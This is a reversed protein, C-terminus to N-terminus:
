STSQGIMSQGTMSLGPRQHGEIIESVSDDDPKKRAVNGNLLWWTHFGRGCCSMDLACLILTVLSSLLLVLLARLLNLQYEFFYLFCFRIANHWWKLAKEEDRRRGIDLLIRCLFLVIRKLTGLVYLFVLFGIIYEPIRVSFSPIRARDGIVWPGCIPVGCWMTISLFIFINRLGTIFAGCVLVWQCGIFILFLVSFDIIEAPLCLVIGCTLILRSLLFIALAFTPTNKYSSIENELGCEYINRFTQDKGREMVNNLEEANWGSTSTIFEVFDNADQKMLSWRPFPSFIVPTILWAFISILVLIMPLYGGGGDSANLTAYCIYLALLNFAPHYHSRWYTKYNDKWTQHQNAIPRGTFFYKAVGTIMGERMASAINKNQFIFFFTSSVIGCVLDRVARQPGFELLLEMFQPVMAVIGMSVIWESSLLSGLKSLDALSISALTFALFLLVYIYISCDILLNSIYFAISSFYFSLGHLIGIRECIIHNDRSRIVAISGGSIKSFFNSAANFTAERGKEFELFDIHPSNEERMRVNYGAFIDESLNVVPSCKSMGGRNRAWFGDVFDPHGYHMRTAMGSLFRQYITGFTWEAAAHCRGVCGDRGTFIYERFGIYRALVSSRSARDLPAFMRLVYPMKFAEGIFVGMNCDMAQIYHGSAFRLANLQNSAKGQTECGKTGIRLPYCRPLVEMVELGQHAGWRCKVSCYKPVVPGSPNDQRRCNNWATQLQAPTLQDQALGRCMEDYTVLADNLNSCVRREERTQELFQRVLEKDEDKSKPTLDFVLYFPLQPYKRLLLKVDADHRGSGSTEGPKLQGYTQHALLLEVHKEPTRIGPQQERLDAYHKQIGPLSQLALHYQLAGIVTKAVSQTRMAAWFRIEEEITDGDPGTADMGQNRMFNSYLEVADIQLRVALCVWEDPFQSIIFYLNTNLGDGKPPKTRENLGHRDDGQNRADDIRGGSQLFEVSPIVMEDYAPIIQTLSPISGAHFHDATLADTASVFTAGELQFHPKEIWKLSKFFAALREAALPNHIVSLDIQGRRADPLPQGDLNVGAAAALRRADGPLLLSDKMLSQAMKAFIRQWGPGFTREFLEASYGNMSLDIIEATNKLNNLKRKNGMVLGGFACFIYMVFYIDLMVSIGVLTWVFVISMACPVCSSTMWRQSCAGMQKQSDFKSLLIFGCQNEWDLGVTMPLLLRHEFVICCGLMLAWCLLVVGDKKSLWRWSSNQGDLEGKLYIPRRRRHMIIFILIRPLWYLGFRILAESTRKDECENSDKNRCVPTRQAIDLNSYMLAFGFLALLLGVLHELLWLTSIAGPSNRGFSPSRQWTCYILQLVEIIIWLASDLLGSYQLLDVRLWQPSFLGGNPDLRSGLYLYYAIGFCWLKIFFVARYSIMLDIFVFVSQPEKFTKTVHKRCQVGSENIDDFNHGLQNQDGSATPVPARRYPNSNKQMQDLGDHLVDLDITYTRANSEPNDRSNASALIESLLYSLREPCNIIHEGLSEMIRLLAAELFLLKTTREEGRAREDHAARAGAYQTWVAFNQLCRAHVIEVAEEWDSRFSDAGPNVPVITAGQPLQQPSAHPQRARTAKIDLRATYVQDMLIRIQTRIHSMLWMEVKERNELKKTTLAIIHDGQLQANAPAISSLSVEHRKQPLESRPQVQQERTPNAAERREADENQRGGDSSSRQRVKTCVYVSQVCIVLLVLGIGPLLWPLAPQMMACAIEPDTSEGETFLPERFRPTVCHLGWRSVSSALGLFEPYMKSSPGEFNEVEVSCATDHSFRSSKCPETMAAVSSAALKFPGNTGRAWDDQWEDVLFGNLLGECSAKKANNYQKLSEKLIQWQMTQSNSTSNYDEIPGGGGPSELVAANGVMLVVGVKSSPKAEDCLLDNLRDMLSAKVYADVEESDSKMPLSFSWLWRNSSRTIDTSPNFLPTNWTAGQESGAWTKMCDVFWKLDKRPDPNKSSLRSIDLPVLLPIDKLELYDDGKTARKVLEQLLNKWRKYAEWSMPETGACTKSPGVPLEDLDLTLDVSWAAMKLNNSTIDAVSAAFHRFSQQIFSSDSVDPEYAGKELMDAYHRSLQFTPIVKKIGVEHVATFFDKRRQVAHQPNESNIDVNWPRVRITDAGLGAILKLDRRHLNGYARQYVDDIDGDVVPYPEGILHPVYQVGKVDFDDMSAGSHKISGASFTASVGYDLGTLGQVRSTAPVALCAVTWGFLTPGVTAASSHSRLTVMANSLM